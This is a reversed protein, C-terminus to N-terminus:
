QGMSRMPGFIQASISMGSINLTTIHFMSRFTMKPLRPLVTDDERFSVTLTSIGPRIHIAVYTPM